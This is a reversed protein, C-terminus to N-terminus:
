SELMSVRCVSSVTAGVAGPVRHFRAAVVWAVAAVVAIPASADGIAVSPFDKCVEKLVHALAGLAVLEVLVLKPVPHDIAWGSAAPESTGLIAPVSSFGSGVRVRSKDMEFVLPQGQALLFPRSPQPYGVAGDAAPDLPALAKLLKRSLMKAM